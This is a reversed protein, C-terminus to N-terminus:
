KNEGKILAVMDKLGDDSYFKLYNEELLKIIREEANREAERWVQELLTNPVITQGDYFTMVKGNSDSLKALEALIAEQTLEGM